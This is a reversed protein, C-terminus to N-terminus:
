ANNKKNMKLACATQFMYGAKKDESIWACKQHHMFVGVIGMETQM